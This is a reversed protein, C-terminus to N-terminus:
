GLLSEAEELTVNPSAYPRQLPQQKAILAEILVACTEAGGMRRYSQMVKQAAQRYREDFLIAEIAKQLRKGKALAPRLRIGAGCAKVRAASEPQDASIPIVILPLGHLLTESVTNNGGHSIVADVKSLLQLQPVFRKVLVNKPADKFLEINTHNGLAFIAKWHAEKALKMVNQFVSIGGVITGMSVYLTPRKDELWEWPFNDHLEGRIASTVPGVYMMQPPVHHRPYEYADTTPILSLYPSHALMGGRVAPLGYHRRVRNIIQDHRWLVMEVPINLFPWLFRVPHHPPYWDSGLGYPPCDSSRHTNVIACYTAYPLQCVDAAIPGAYFNLDTLLVDPKQDRIIHILQATLQELYDFFYTQPPKIQLQSIWRAPKQFQYLINSIAGDPYYLPLPTLNARKLQSHYSQDTAVLVQHGRKQLAQAIAILPNIHGSAPLSSILIKSM